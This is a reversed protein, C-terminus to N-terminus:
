NAEGKEDLQIRGRTSERIKKKHKTSINYHHVHATLSANMTLTQASFADSVSTMYDEGWFFM